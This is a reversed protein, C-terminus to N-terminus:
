GIQDYVIKAINHLANRPLPGSLAYGFGQDVWYFGPVPGDELFRFSTEQSGASGAKVAGIYLTLRQGAANQYMFQARAGGEGPLLRGGLLEYGQQTLVPVKLPKGLRKSLWQVLHQQQAADVEVPHRVEPQYVVYAVSAQKAFQQAPSPAMYRAAYEISGFWGLGFALVVSAAIGAWRTWNMASHRLEQAREAAALLPAPTTELEPQAFARRLADRQATWASVTAEQHPDAALRRRLEAAEGAPLRGDVLAHLDDEDIRAAGQRTSM